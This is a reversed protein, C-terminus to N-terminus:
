AKEASQGLQAQIEKLKADIADDTAAEDAAAEVDILKDIEDDSVLEAPTDASDAFIADDSTELFLDVREEM